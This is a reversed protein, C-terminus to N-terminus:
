QGEARPRAGVVLAIQTIDSRMTAIEARVSRFEVAMEARVSRFEERMEGRLESLDERTERRSTEQGAELRDFQRRNSRNLLIGVIGLAVVSVVSDVFEM